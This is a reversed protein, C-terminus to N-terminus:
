ATLKTSPLADMPGRNAPPNLFRRIHRAIKQQQQWDTSATRSVALQQGSITKLQIRYFRTGLVDLTDIEVAAVDLIPYRTMKQRLLHRKRITLTKQVKDFTLTEAPVLAMFISSLAICFAGIWDVPPEFLFFMFIGTFGTAVSLLELGLLREQITLHIATHQLVKM